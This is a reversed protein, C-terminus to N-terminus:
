LFAQGAAHDDEGKPPLPRRSDRSTRWSGTGSGRLKGDADARLKIAYEGAGSRMDMVVENGRRSARDIAGHDVNMNSGDANKWVFMITTYGALDTRSM